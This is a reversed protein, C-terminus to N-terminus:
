LESLILLTKSSLVYNTGEFLYCIDSLNYILVLILRDKKDHLSLGSKISSFATLTCYTVCKSERLFKLRLNMKQKLTCNPLPLFLKIEFHQFTSQSQWSNSLHAFGIQYRNTFLYINIFIEGFNRM